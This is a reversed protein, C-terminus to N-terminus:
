WTLSFCVDFERIKARRSPDVQNAIGHHRVVDEADCRRHIQCGSRSPKGGLLQHLIAKGGRKLKPDGYVRAHSLTISEGEDDLVM